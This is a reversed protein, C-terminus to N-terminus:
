EDLMGRYDASSPTASLAPMEIDPLANEREDDLMPAFLYAADLERVVLDATRVITVMAPGLPPPSATYPYIGDRLIKFNGRTFKFRLRAWKHARPNATDTEERPRNPLYTTVKVYADEAIREAQEPAETCAKVATALILLTHHFGCPPVKPNTKFLIKM